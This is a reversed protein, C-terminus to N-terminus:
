HMNNFLSHAGDDTGSKEERERERGEDDTGGGKKAKRACMREEEVGRWKAKRSLLTNSKHWFFHSGMERERERERVEGSELGFLSDIRTSPSDRSFM